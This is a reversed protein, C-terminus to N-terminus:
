GGMRARIFAVANDAPFETSEADRRGRYELKGADLGREGIVLRHPIGLLEADALAEKLAASPLITMGRLPLKLRPHPEGRLCPELLEDDLWTGWLKVAHGRMSAVTAMASGMYGAGLVTVRM